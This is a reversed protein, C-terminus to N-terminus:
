NGYLVRGVPCLEFLSSDQDRLRIVGDQPKLAILTVKHFLKSKAYFMLPDIYVIKFLSGTMFTTCNSKTPAIINCNNKVIDGSKFKM